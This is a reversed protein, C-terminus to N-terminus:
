HSLDIYGDEDLEVRSIGPTEKELRILEQVRPDVRKGPAAPMRPNRAIDSGDHEAQLAHFVTFMLEDDSWPKEIFRHIGADNIAQILGGREAHASLLIRAAGPALPRSRALFEIGSLQPMRLDSIIIDPNLTRLDELCRQPDTYTLVEVGLRQLCRRLARCIAPEDDVCVIRHGQNTTM